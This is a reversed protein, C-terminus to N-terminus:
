FDESQKIREIEEKIVDRAIQPTIERVIERVAEVIIESLGDVERGISTDLSQELIGKIREGVVKVFPDETAQFHPVPAPSPYRTPLPPRPRMVEEQKDLDSFDDDKEIMDSTSGSNRFSFASPVMKELLDEPEAVIEDLSDDNKSNSPTTEMIEAPEPGLASEFEYFAQDLDSEDDIDNVNIESLDEDFGPLDGTIGSFSEEEDPANLEKMMESKEMMGAIVQRNQEAVEEESISKKENGSMEFVDEDEQLASVEEFINEEQDALDEALENEFTSDKEIERNENFISESLEQDVAAFAKPSLSPSQSDSELFGLKESSFMSDLMEDFTKEKPAISLIAPTEVLSSDAEASEMEETASKVSTEIKEVAEGETLASDEPFAEELKPFERVVDKEADDEVEDELGFDEDDDKEDEVSAFSKELAEGFDEDAGEETTTDEVGLADDESFELVDEDEDDDKEDEVSAFGKELAEEFDEDVGEETVPEAFDEIKDGATEEAVTDDEDAESDTSDLTGEEEDLPNIEASAPLEFVEEDDDEDEDAETIEESAGLALVDEEPPPNVTTTMALDLATEPDDDAEGEEGSLLNRIKHIVDDSKFPKSIHGDAHSELFKEQNFEEFDSSLLLVKIHSWEPNSKVQRSLDFGNIEPMEIDALLIDPQFDPILDLAEQGNSVGEVIEDEAEFAMAVIKRITASDDAILIKATM